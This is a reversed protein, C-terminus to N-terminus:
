GKVKIMTFPHGYFAVNRGKIQWELEDRLNLEAQTLGTYSNIAYPRRNAYMLPLMNTGSNSTAIYWDSPSTELENIVIKEVGNNATAIVNDTASIFKGKTLQDAALELSPPVVVFTPLLNRNRGNPMVFSRMKAKAANFNSPIVLGNADVLPLGTLLNSYSGLGPDFPNIPHDTAFFAKGDYCIATEGAKILDIADYQPALAMAAGAQAAWDSVFGLENDDFQDRNVKLGTGKKQNTFEFFSRVLEDYKMTGTDLLHIDATTLLFELFEKRGTSPRERMLKDWWANKLSEEYDNNAIKMLRDEVTMVHAISWDM